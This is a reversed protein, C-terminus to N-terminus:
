SAGSDRSPCVRHDGLRMDTLRRDSILSRRLRDGASLCRGDPLKFREGADPRPATKKHSRSDSGAGINLRPVSQPLQGNRIATLRCQPFGSRKATDTAQPSLTRKSRAMYGMAQQPRRGTTNLDIPILITTAHGSIVGNPSSSPIAAMWCVYRM